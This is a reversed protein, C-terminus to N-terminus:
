PPSRLYEDGRRPRRLGPTGSPIEERARQKTMGAHCNRDEQRWAHLIGSRRGNGAQPFRIFRGTVRTRRRPRLIGALHAGKRVTLMTGRICPRRKFAPRPEACRPRVMCGARQSEGGPARANRIFLGSDFWLQLPCLKRTASANNPAGSAWMLTLAQAPTVLPRAGCPYTTGQSVVVNGLSQGAMSVVLRCGLAMHGLLRGPGLPNCSSDRPAPDKM